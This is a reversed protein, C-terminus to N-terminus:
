SLLAAVGEPGPREAQRVTEAGLERLHRATTAGLSLFTAAALRPAFSGGLAQLLIDGARPSGVVIADPDPADAVRQEVDPHADLTYAVVEHVVRGASRLQHTAIDLAHRGRLFLVREIAPAETVVQEAIVQAGRAGVMVVDFGAQKAARGTHLGVCVAPWGRALKPDIFAVANASTLLVADHERARLASRLAEINAPPVLRTVPVAVTRAGREAFAAEYKSLLGESMALWILPGTETM